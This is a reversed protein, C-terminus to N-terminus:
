PQRPAHQESCSGHCDHDNHQLAQNAEPKKNKTNAAERDMFLPFDTPIINNDFATGDPAFIRLGFGLVKQDRYDTKATGLPITAIRICIHFRGDENRSLAHDYFDYGDCMGGASIHFPTIAAIKDELQRLTINQVKTGDPDAYLKFLLTEVESLKV